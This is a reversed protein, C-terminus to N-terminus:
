RALRERMIAELRPLDAELGLTPAFRRVVDVFMEGSEIVRPDMHGMVELVVVGYLQTWGQMYVWVLGRSELPIQEVKAPILPDVLADRVSAPLDNARDLGPNFLPLDPILDAGVFQLDPALREALDLLARNLSDPRLSGCFALVPTRSM